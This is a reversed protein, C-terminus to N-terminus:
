LFFLPIKPNGLAGCIVNWFFRAFSCAFFLHDIREAAGCFECFNSGKWGRKSLNDKLIRGKIVLWVFAKVKLPIRLRWLIKFPFVVVRAIIYHYLSKVSFSGSKTLLWKVKDPEELLTVQSCMDLLKNWM